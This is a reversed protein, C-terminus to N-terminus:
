QDTRIAKLVEVTENSEFRILYVGPSKTEPQWKIETIGAPYEDNAPIAVLQGRLDYIGIRVKSITPLSFRITTNTNFPNPYNSLLHPKPALYGVNKGKAITITFPPLNNSSRTLSKISIGSVMQRPINLSHNTVSGTTPSTYIFTYRDNETMSIAKSTQHDQLSINWDLPWNAPLEWELTYSDDIDIGEKKGDVYLPINVIEENIVPLNNIVLPSVHNYSSLTFLDLWSNSMPELRYADLRDPGTIGDTNLSIFSTTKMKDATLVMPITIENNSSASRLFNGTIETKADKTFSLTTNATAHVWFAQFPAIRGNGLTGTTGNWTLYDGNGGLASPDWIYITNDVNAKTWVTGTADWNLTSATPNGILNWGQDLSTIDEFTKDTPTATQTSSDRASYTLNYNFSGVNNFNDVGTVSMTVPLLDTYNQGTPTGDANLKGAGNFIYHFYGRGPVTNETFISPQRWSQLTTGNDTENWWILNPQLSPNNSGSFGQTVLPSKFLDSFNSGIPSSIMRWGKTGTLNRQMELKPTSIGLNLYSAGSKLLIKGSTGTSITSASGFTLSPGAELTLTGTINILPTPTKIGSGSVILNNVTTPLGTMIQSSTGNFEYNAAPDFTPNLSTSSISQTTTGIIGASNVTKLIAGPKLIFLNNAIDGKFLFGVWQNISSDLFIISGFVNTITKGPNRQNQTFICGDNLTLTGYITLTM